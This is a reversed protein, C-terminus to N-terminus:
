PKIIKSPKFLTKVIIEHLLSFIIASENQMNRVLLLNLNQSLNEQYSRSNKIRSCAKLTDCTKITEELEKKKTEFM